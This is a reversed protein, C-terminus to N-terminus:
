GFIFEIKRRKKNNIRRFRKKRKPNQNFKLKQTEKLSEINNDKVQIDANEEPIAKNIDNAVSEMMELAYCIDEYAQKEDEIKM